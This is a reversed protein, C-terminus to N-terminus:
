HFIKEGNKPIICKAEPFEKTLKKCFGKPSRLLWHMPVIIPFSKKFKKLEKIAGKPSAAFISGIPVALMDLDLNTFGDFNVSDGLHGFIFSPTKVVIGINEVGRFFGHKGSIFDFEWVGKKLSEGDQITITQDKFRSFKKIVQKNGILVASSSNIELFKDVGATHDPHHHTAYVIETELQSHSKKSPDILIKSNNYELLFCSQGFYTIITSSM